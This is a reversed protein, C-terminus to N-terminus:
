LLGEILSQSAKLSLMYLLWRLQISVINKQLTKM